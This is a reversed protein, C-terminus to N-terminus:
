HLLLSSDLVHCLSVDGVACSVVQLLDIQEDLLQCFLMTGGASQEVNKVKQNEESHAEKHECMYATM